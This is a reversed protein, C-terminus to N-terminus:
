HHQVPPTLGLITYGRWHLVPFHLRAALMPPCIDRLHQVRIDAPSQRRTHTRIRPQLSATSPMRFTVPFARVIVATRSINPVSDYMIARTM